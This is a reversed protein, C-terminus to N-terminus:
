LLGCKHINQPCQFEAVVNPGGEIMKLIKEALLDKSSGRM